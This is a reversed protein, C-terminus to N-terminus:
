YGFTTSQSPQGSTIQLKGRGEILSQHLKFHILLIINIKNSIRTM